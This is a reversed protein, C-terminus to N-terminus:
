EEDVVEEVDIIKGEISALTKLLNDEVEEISKSIHTIESKRKFADVGDVEGIAKLAAIKDKDNKAGEALRVLNNVVYIKFEALDKVIMCNSQAVLGALFAMTENPYHAFEPRIDPNSIMEQALRTAERIDNKDPEINDGKLDAILKITNARMKIEEDVSLEPMAYSTNKPLPIDEDIDPMMIVSNFGDDEPVEQINKSVM